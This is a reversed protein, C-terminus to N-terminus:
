GWRVGRFGGSSFDSNFILTKDFNHINYIDFTTIVDFTEISECDSFSLIHIFHYDRFFGQM